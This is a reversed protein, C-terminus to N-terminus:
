RDFKAFTEPVVTFILSEFKDNSALKSQIHTAETVTCM